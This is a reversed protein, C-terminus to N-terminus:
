TKGFMRVRDICDWFPLIRFSTCSHHIIGLYRVAKIHKAMALGEDYTISKEGRRALREKTGEDDRLDCKLAVLCLKVGTM